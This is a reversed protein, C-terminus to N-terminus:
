LSWGCEACVIRFIDEHIEERSRTGDVLVMKVSPHKGFEHFGKYVREYFEVPQADFHSVDGRITARDRAVVPSVDLLIYLSPLHGDFVLNRHSWFHAELKQKQKGYVQYALTSSDGRDSFVPINDELASWVVQELYNRRSAWMMLFQTLASAEGGLDSKFLERIAESLPAGGPERTLVFM